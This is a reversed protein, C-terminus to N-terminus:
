RGPPGGDVYNAGVVGEVETTAVAPSVPLVGLPDAM